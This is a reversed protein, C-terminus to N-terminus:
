TREKVVRADKRLNAATRDPSLTDRSLMELGSRSILAGVVIIVVGVLAFAAWDPMVRALAAAGGELLVVLGAFAVFAGGLLWIAAAIVRDLKQSFEARALAVEGRMLDQVDVILSGLLDKLGGASEVRPSDM